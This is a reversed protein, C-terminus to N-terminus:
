IGEIFMGIVKWVDGEKRLNLELTAAGFAAAIEVPYIMATQITEETGEQEKEAFTIEAESYDIEADELFGQEIAGGLFQRLAEKDGQDPSDFDDSYLAMIGEIDQTVFVVEFKKLMADVYEKDSMPEGTPAAMEDWAIVGVGVRAGAAGSPQSTLDDEGGHVVVARGIISAKGDFTLYLDHTMLHAEGSGDAEINGLDGVHRYAKDPGAHNAGHPNFHGGASTGDPASIDGFEHIHFGHKGESLGKIHAHVKIGLPTEEFTVTGHAKNGETPTIVAVARRVEHHAANAVFPAATLAMALTAVVVLRKRNLM